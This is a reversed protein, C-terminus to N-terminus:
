RGKWFRPDVVLLPVHEFAKFIEEKLDSNIVGSNYSQYSAKLQDLTEAGIIFREFQDFDRTFGLALDTIEVKHKECIRNLEMLYPKAEQMSPLLTEPCCFLLGQLYISRAFLKVNRLKCKKLFGSGTFRRDFINVPVQLVDLNNAIAKEAEEFTYVSAGAYGILQKHKLSILHDIVKEDNIDDPDHLLYYDIRTQNLRKLTQKLSTTIFDKVESRKVRGPLKSIIKIQDSFEPKSKLLEGIISESNGYGPATDFTVIGKSCAWELIELAKNRDPKGTKNAIGYNLGLQATGLALKTIQNIAIEM